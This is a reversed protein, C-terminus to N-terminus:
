WHVPGCPISSILLSHYFCATNVYFDLVKIEADVIKDVTDVLGTRKEGDAAIADARADAAAIAEAAYVALVADDDVEQRVVSSFAATLLLSLMTLRLM